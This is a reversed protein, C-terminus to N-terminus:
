HIMFYFVFFVVVSVNLIIIVKIRFVKQSKLQDALGQVAQSQKCKICFLFVNYTNSKNIAEAHIQKWIHFFFGEQFAHHHDQNQM